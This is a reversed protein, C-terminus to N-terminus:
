NNENDKQNNDNKSIDRSLIAKYIEQQITNGKILNNNHQNLINEISQMKYNLIKCEIKIKELRMCCIVIIILLLVIIFPEYANILAIFGFTNTSNSYM